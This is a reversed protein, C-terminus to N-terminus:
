VGAVKDIAEMKSFGQAEYQKIAEVDEAKTSMLKGAAPDVILQGVALGDPTKVAIESYKGGITTVSQYLRKEFANMVLQGKNEVEQLTEPKQRLLFVFDSNNYAALATPSRYYDPISQTITMFAGGYKRATRYGEEIFDGANGKGLLRWAEDVICVKRQSRGSLYMVETVRKMLLLLVVIQLDGKANLDDLELVIMNNSFDINADGEFYDAYSGGAMYPALMTALRHAEPKNMAELHQGVTTISAKQRKQEWARVIATELLSAQESTIRNVPDAMCALIVKLLPLQDAFKQPSKAYVEPDTTREDLITSFPNLVVKAGPEFTIFQGGLIDCLNKYSRGSDFIFTRGGTSLLAMVYEQTFFSKGAGSAAAVAMNFNGKTNQFPDIFCLQGRRGLLVLQPDKDAPVNGKWEGIWPAINVVNWSLMTRFFKKTKVLEFAERGINLPLCTLFRSLVAFRVKVIRWGLAAFVSRLSQECREEDGLPSFLVINAAIQLMKSGQEMQSVVFQWDRHREAWAPVMRGLPTDKMQGARLLKQKATAAASVQDPVHVVLTMLFPCGVRQVRNFFAGAFEGNSAGCWQPPFQKVTYPLVSVYNDKWRLSLSDRGVYLASEDSVMQENLRLKPDYDVPQRREEADLCPRLLDGVFNLLHRPKMPEGHMNASKLIGIVADQHRQLEDLEVQPLETQGKKFPLAVSIVLHYDRILVYEDPFLSRWAGKELFRVRRRALFQFVDGNKVRKDRGRVSAWRDLIGNVNPDAVLSVQIITGARYQNTFIGELTRIQTEDLGAAPQAYVVFGVSDLNHYLKTAEDYRRYNLLSSISATSGGAEVEEMTPPVGNGAFALHDAEPKVMADRFWAKIQNLM